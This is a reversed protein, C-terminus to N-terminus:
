SAKDPRGIEALLQAASGRCLRGAELDRESSVMRAIAADEILAYYDNETMVVYQPKNNRIIHVPGKTLMEDVAGIGRRKIEHAAVTTM